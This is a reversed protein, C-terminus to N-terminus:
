PRQSTGLWMAPESLRYKLVWTTTELKAGVFPAWQQDLIGSFNRLFM